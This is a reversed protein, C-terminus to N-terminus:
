MKMAVLDVASISIIKAFEAQTLDHIKRLSKINEGIM